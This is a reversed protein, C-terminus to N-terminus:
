SDHWLTQPRIDRSSASELTKKGRYICSLRLVVDPVHGVHVDTYVHIKGDTHTRNNATTKQMGEPSTLYYRQGKVKGVQQLLLGM